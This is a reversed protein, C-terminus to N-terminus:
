RSSFQQVVIRLQNSLLLFEELARDDDSSDAMAKHAKSFSVVARPIQSYIAILNKRSEYIDLSSHYQNYLEDRNVRKDRRIHNLASKQNAKIVEWDAAPLFGLYRLDEALADSAADIYPQMEQITSRVRRAILQETASRTLAGITAPIIGAATSSSGNLAVGFQIIASSLQQASASVREAAGPESIKSLETAYNQLAAVTAIRKEWLQPHIVADQPIPPFNFRDGALYNIAEDDEAVTEVLKVHNVYALEVSTGLDTAAQGFKAIKAQEPLTACGIFTSLLLSATIRTTITRMNKGSRLLNPNKSNLQKQM